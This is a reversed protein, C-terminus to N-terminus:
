PKRVGEGTRVNVTGIAWVIKRAKNTAVTRRGASRAVVYVAAGRAATGSDATVPVVSTSFSQSRYCLRNNFVACLASFRRSNRPQTGLQIEM